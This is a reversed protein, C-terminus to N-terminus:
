KGGKPVLTIGRWDWERKWEKLFSWTAVVPGALLGAIVCLLIGLPVLVMSPLLWRRQAPTM